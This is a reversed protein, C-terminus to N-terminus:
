RYTDVCLTKPPLDETM